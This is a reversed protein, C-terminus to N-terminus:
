NRKPMRVVKPNPTSRQWFGLLVVDSGTFTLGTPRGAGDNFVHEDLLMHLRPVSVGLVEAAENETYFDKFPKKANNMM